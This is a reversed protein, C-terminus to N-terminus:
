KKPQPLRAPREVADENADDTAAAQEFLDGSASPPRQVQCNQLLPRVDELLFRDYTYLVHVAPDLEATAAIQLDNIRSGVAVKNGCEKCTEASKPNLCVRCVMKSSKVRRALEAARYVHAATLPSIVLGGYVKEEDGSRIMPAFEAAVVASVHIWEQMRVLRRCAQIQQARESSADTLAKQAALILVMTNFM